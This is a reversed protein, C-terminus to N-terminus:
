GLSSKDIRGLLAAVRVRLENSGFPQSLFDNAGLSYALAISDNDDLASIMLIPAQTRKRLEACAQFGDMGPMMIDLLILDVTAAEVQQIAEFGDHAVLVEFGDLALVAEISECYTVNDDTILITARNTM